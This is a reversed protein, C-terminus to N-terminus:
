NQWYRLDFIKCAMLLISRPKKCEYTIPEIWRMQRILGYNLMDLSFRESKFLYLSYQYKFNSLFESEEKKEAKVKTQLCQYRCELASCSYLNSLPQDPFARSVAVCRRMLSSMGQLPSRLREPAFGVKVFSYDNRLMAINDILVFATSLQDILVMFFLKVFSPTDKLTFSFVHAERQVGHGFLYNSFVITKGEFDPVLKHILAGIDCRSFQSDLGSRRM